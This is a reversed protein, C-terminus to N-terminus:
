PLPRFERELIKMQRDELAKPNVVLVMTGGNSLAIDRVNLLFKMAPEFGNELILYELSDLYIANYGIRFAKAILDTLVDIKTPSITYTSEGVQGDRVKTLWYILSSNTVKPPSRTIIIPTFNSIFSLAAKRNETYYAGPEVKGTKVVRPRTISYYAFGLAGVAAITRFIFAAFFAYTAWPMPRTIPYTLNIAGLLFLGLPFLADLFRESGVVYRKLVYAIYIMSLGYFLSPLSYKIAFSEIEGTGLLFLWLYATILLGAMLLVHRFETKGYRLHFGAWCIMWAVLFNPIASLVDYGYVVRLGLPELIYREVALADILFATALLAWGKERTRYAKYAAVSFLIWRSLFNLCAILTM